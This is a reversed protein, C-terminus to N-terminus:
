KTKEAEMGTGVKEKAKEVWGSTRLNITNIDVLDQLVQCPRTKM